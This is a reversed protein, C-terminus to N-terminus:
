LDHKMGRLRAMSVRAEDWRDRNALWRPSEPAFLIGIGLPLSFAIGLGIVIRWSASQEEIERVGYNIINSILIGITIMLQYSAVVAGRIERPLCESQFMPVGVSLNGVGLGAVFRGMMMHVWSQMATIQIINGIIFLGVGFTLSWRRGWWDATYAGSLAGLLSGISMLSVLLSQIISVWEKDGEPGQAFRNMFDKFLLM